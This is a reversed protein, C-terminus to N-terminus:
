YFGDQEREGIVSALSTLGARLKPRLKLIAVRTQEMRRPLKSGDM